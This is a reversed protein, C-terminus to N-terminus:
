IVALKGTTRVKDVVATAVPGMDARLQPGVTDLADAFKDDTAKAKNIAGVLAKFSTRNKRDKFWGLIGGVVLSVPVNYPPPIFTTLAMMTNGADFNGEDDAFAGLHGKISAVVAQAEALQATEQPTKDPKAQLTLIQQATANILALAEDYTAQQTEQSPPAECAVVTIHVAWLLVFIQLTRKLM